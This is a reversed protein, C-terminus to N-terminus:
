AAWSISSDADLHAGSTLQRPKGAPQLDLGLQQVFLEFSGDVLSLYAIADGSPSWVPHANTGSVLLTASTDFLSPEPTPSPLPTRVPAPAILVPARTPVFAPSASGRASAQGSASAGASAAGSASPAAGAGASGRASAGPSASAAVGSSASAATSAVSAPGSSAAASLGTGAAGVTSPQVAAATAASSPVGVATAAAAAPVSAGAVPTNGAFRVTGAPGCASAEAGGGAGDAAGGDHAGAAQSGVQCASGTGPSGAAADAPFFVAGLRVAPPPSPRDPMTLLWVQDQGNVRRIAAIHMGDPSWSPQMVSDASGTLERITNRTLDLLDLEGYPTLSDPEYDWSTYLVANSGPRWVPYDVGGTYANSGSLQTRAKTVITMRWVTPDLLGTRLRGRDSVYILSKGDPAWSPQMEWFNNDVISSSNATLAKPTGGPYDMLYLDASNKGARDFALQTGVPSWSPNEVGGLSTLQATAGGSYVYINHGKSFAIAGPVQPVPTPTPLAVTAAAPPETGAPQSAGSSAPGAAPSVAPSCACLLVGLLPWCLRRM